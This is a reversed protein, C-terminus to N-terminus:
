LNDYNKEEQTRLPIISAKKKLAVDLLRDTLEREIDAVIAEKALEIQELIPGEEIRKETVFFFVIEGSPPVYIPSWQRRELAFAQQKM